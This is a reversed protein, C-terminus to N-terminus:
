ARSLGVAARRLGRAGASPGAKTSRPRRPGLVAPRDARPQFDFGQMVQVFGKGEDGLRHDVPVRVDDFFISGRGIARQRSRRLPQTTVGPTDMPVFFRPSATRATGGHRHPRLGRPTPRTPSALDFNERRQPRLPRRQASGLAAPQRRGLRRAARDSRDRVGGRRGGAQGGRRSSTRRGHASLIQWNLSAAPPHLQHEPRRPRDGRPDRRGGRAWARAGFQQAAGAGIFGMEGMERM